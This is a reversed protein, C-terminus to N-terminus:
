FGTCFINWSLQLCNPRQQPYAVVYRYVAVDLIICGSDTDDTLTLPIRAQNINLPRGDSTFLKPPKKVKKKETRKRDVDRIKRAKKAIAIRDEPTNRSPADWFAKIQEETMEEESEDSSLIEQAESKEKLRKEKYKEQERIISREYNEFDQYAIIKESREIEVNDLEKLQPLVTIVYERYGKYDTCPNGTLYRPFCEM